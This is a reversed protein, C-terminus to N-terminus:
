GFPRSAKWLVIFQKNFCNLQKWLNSLLLVNFQIKHIKHIEFLLMLQVMIFLSHKWIIVMFDMMGEEIIGLICEFNQLSCIFGLNSKSTIPHQNPFCINAHMVEKEMKLDQIYKASSNPIMSLIYLITASIYIFIHADLINGLTADHDTTLM